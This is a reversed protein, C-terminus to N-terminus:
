GPNRHMSGHRFQSCADALYMPVTAPVTAAGIEVEVHCNACLLVCKKAEARIRALSYTVGQGSLGLRKESPDLHHFQLAQVHGAYGCIACRGGAEEVLIAKLKQRHRVVSDARCRKCRYYGRGEIVFETDGHRPCTMTAALMGADRAASAVGRMRTGVGNKTRLAYRRLWHRVTAKSRGVEEAIEAITMGAEVLAELREREIGGKAAHKERYPSVLGYKKMWYSITSPDKGFRKAVREISLGQQLLLELSEQDM